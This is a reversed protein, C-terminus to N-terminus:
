LTYSEIQALKEKEQNEQYKKFESVFQTVRNKPVENDSNAM